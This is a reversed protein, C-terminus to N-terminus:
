VGGSLPLRLPSLKILTLCFQPYKPDTFNCAPRGSVYLSAVKLTRNRRVCLRVVYIWEGGSVPSLPVIHLPICDFRSLSMDRLARYM